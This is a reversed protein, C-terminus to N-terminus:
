ARYRATTMTPPTFHREVAELIHFVLIKRQV